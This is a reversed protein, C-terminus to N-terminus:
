RSSDRDCGDRRRTETGNRVRSITVRSEIRGPIADIRVGDLNPNTVVLTRRELPEVPARNKEAFAAAERLPDIRFIQKLLLLTGIIGVIAMPYAVAYGLAPLALRDPAINPLTSLTQSGAGLSPTNTVAGSFIGLVAAM